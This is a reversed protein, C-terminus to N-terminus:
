PPKPRKQGQVAKTESTTGVKTEVTTELNAVQKTKKFGRNVPGAKPKGQGPRFNETGYDQWNKILAIKHSQRKVGCGLEAIEIFGHAVLQDIAKSITATSYGFQRHISKYSLVLKGNNKAFFQTSERDRRSPQYSELKLRMYLELVIQKAAGTLRVFAKSRLMKKSLILRDSQRVTTEYIWYPKSSDKSMGKGLAKEPEM